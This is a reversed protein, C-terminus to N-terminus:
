AKGEGSAATDTRGKQREALMADAYAYARMAVFRPWHKTPEYESPSVGITQAVQGPAWGDDAEIEASMARVAIYDRVTLGGTYNAQGDHPFAPGGDAPTTM